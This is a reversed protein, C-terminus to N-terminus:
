FNRRIIYAMAERRHHAQVALAFEADKLAYENIAEDICAELTADEETGLLEAVRSVM